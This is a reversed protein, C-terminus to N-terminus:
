RGKKGLIIVSELTFHYDETVPACITDWSRGKNEDMHTRENKKPTANRTEQVDKNIGEKSISYM